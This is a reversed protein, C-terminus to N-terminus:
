EHEAKRIPGAPRLFRKGLGSAGSRFRQKPAGAGKAPNFRKVAQRLAQIDASANKGGYRLAVYRSTVADVASKLDPRAASVFRRYDEPGQAAKRPLGIRDLKRCFVSYAAQVPDKRPRPRRLIWIGFFAASVAAGATGLWLAKWPFGRRDDQIGLKELLQQQRQATYGMVKQNWFTNLADWGLSIRQVAGAFPKFVPLAWFGRLDEPPLAAAPGRVVREPAVVSTPDVRLWGKGPLWVEVWVHADSHRVIWYDGYPNMEGGLYGGVLRAPVDAARMLFAFASAFHECYGQRSEFLFSDVTNQALMPPNLTYVFDNRRLFDRAAAVIQGPTEAEQRWRRALAKTRPNGPLPTSLAAKEWASLDGTHYKTLSTVSYSLPKQVPRWTQLTYDARWHVRSPRTAPLDLAFLWRQRHPELTLTYTIPNEGKPPRSRGPPVDGPVWAVGDFHWFVIGRWYLDEPSPRRKSFQVRFAIESSLALATVAGPAIRDSIGSVGTGGKSIGWLSGHLRPFLVFLIAMLPLAKTMVATTLRAKGAAGGSPHNLHILVSTAAWVSLVMYITMLLSEAYLLNAIILFYILFVTIMRDRHTRAELPKLGVMIALLGLGADQGPDHGFTLLGGLFGAAALLSRRWPGPWACLGRASCWAYSWCMVCWGVIWFPLRTFNPGFAVLIAGLLPQLYRREGNVAAYLKSAPRDVM